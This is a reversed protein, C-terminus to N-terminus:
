WREAFSARDRWSGPRTNPRTTPQRTEDLLLALCRGFAKRGIEVAGMRFLHPSGVQCDLLGFEWSVLLRCLAVLAIKSADVSRSFMSEGFFAAGIALGYIGGCLVGDQWVEISHAHGLRHLRRYAAQMDPTIWTGRDQEDDRGRPEACAALVGDFAHDATLSYCGSNYRRRTRRSLHVEAPFIVCRPAPSWWLVPQGESYWPFIGARYAALLRQPHLDGGWALLGNPADLAESVPPFPAAPDAGLRPLDVM